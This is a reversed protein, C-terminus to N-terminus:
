ETLTHVHFDMGQGFKFGKGMEHSCSDEGLQVCNALPNSFEGTM